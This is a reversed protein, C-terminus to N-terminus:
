HGLIALVRQSIYFLFIGLLALSLLDVSTRIKPNFILRLAFYIITYSSAYLGLDSTNLFTLIVFAGLSVAAFILVFRQRSDMGLPGSKGDEITLRKSKKEGYSSLNSPKKGECAASRKEM